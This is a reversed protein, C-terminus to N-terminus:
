FHKKTYFNAKVKYNSVKSESKRGFNHTEPYVKKGKETLMNREEKDDAIAKSPIFDIDKYKEFTECLLKCYRQNVGKESPPM